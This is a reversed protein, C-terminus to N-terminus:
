PEPQIEGSFWVLLDSVIVVSMYYVVLHGNSLAGEIVEPLSLGEGILFVFSMLVGILFYSLLIVRIWLLGKLLRETCSKLMRVRKWTEPFALLTVYCCAVRVANGGLLCAISLHVLMAGFLLMMGIEIIAARRDEAAKWRCFACVLQCATLPLITVMLFNDGAGMLRTLGFQVCLMAALVYSIINFTKRIVSMYIVGFMIWRSVGYHNCRYNVAWVTRM